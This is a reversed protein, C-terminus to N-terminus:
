ASVEELKKLDEYTIGILAHLKGDQTVQATMIEFGKRRLLIGLGLHIEKAVIDFVIGHTWIQEFPDICFDKDKNFIEHLERYATGIENIYEIKIQETTQNNM